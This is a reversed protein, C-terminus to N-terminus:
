TAALQELTSLWRAFHPCRDRITQLGIRQAVQPGEVPKAWEYEPLRSIIRKSPATHIGDNILEPSSYSDAIAQLRGIQKRHDHYFYEFRSPDAFLYAEYEHLQIYPIFRADDIDKAFAQELCQVREQPDHRLNESSERGPFKAHLAYLDIMTTFLVDKGPEQRLLRAIDNKMATYNRGGGRHIRGKKRAHAILIAGQVYIGLKALHPKVVTNVFTQETRGEVFLYLRAM